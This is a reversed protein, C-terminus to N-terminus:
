LLYYATPNIYLYDTRTTTKGNNTSQQALIFIFIRMSEVQIGNKKRIMKFESM